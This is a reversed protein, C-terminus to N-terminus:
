MYLSMKWRTKLARTQKEMMDDCKFIESLLFLTGREDLEIVFPKEKLENFVAKARKCYRFCMCFIFFTLSHYFRLDMAVVASSGLFNVLICCFYTNNLQDSWDVKSRFDSLFLVSFSLYRQFQFVCM